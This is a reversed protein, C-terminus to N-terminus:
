GQVLEQFVEQIEEQHFLLERMQEESLQQLQMAYKNLNCIPQNKLAEELEPLICYISTLKMQDLYSHPFRINPLPVRYLEAGDMFEIIMTKANELTLNPIVINKRWGSVKKQLEEVEHVSYNNTKYLDYFVNYEQHTIEDMNQLLGIRDELTKTKLMTNLILYKNADYADLYEISTVFVNLKSLDYIGQMTSFKLNQVDITINFDEHLSINGKILSRMININTDPFTLKVKQEGTKSTVEVDFQNHIRKM